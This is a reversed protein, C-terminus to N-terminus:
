KKKQKKSKSIKPRKANAKPKPAEEDEAEVKKSKSVKPAKAKPAEEVELEDEPEFADMGEKNLKRLKRKRNKASTATEEEIGSDETVEEQNNVVSAPIADSFKKFKAVFFGDMNHTHPYVRKTLNLTPHFRKEQFRTFGPTGFDLGTPVLKVNRRSLAYNVVAENEDPLVSCTSYVLYGGTKSQASLCDIATIILEKQKTANRQIDKADRQSKTASDKSTVGTGSCPADLLVRDFGTMMQRLKRGDYCCVVSNKVGMRHFNGIIAKARDKNIENAFLMGTNKMLAAMHTSKGGPACCMDLIREGEQPALSMVPLFSAAGQIMYHGALYEPTAGLPVQTSYVVLGVKSWKGIPDLNVGRAILAGALEKRRTKLTNTRITVPRPTESADLAELLEGLPFIQMVRDMLYENYGYYKCLDSLLLATYESRSRGDEKKNKFDLLISVVERIRHDVNSFDYTESELEEQTPFQFKEYNSVQALLEAKAMEKKKKTKEILKAAQIEFPLVDEESDEDDESGGKKKQSVKKKQVPSYEKDDDDDDSQDNDFEDNILEDDDSGPLDVDEDDENREQYDTSGMFDDEDDSGATPPNPLQKRQKRQAKAKGKGVKGDAALSPFTPEKQKKSKRGPGKKPKEAWNVKRGM